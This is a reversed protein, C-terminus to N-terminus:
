PVFKPVSAVTARNEAVVQLAQIQMSFNHHNKSTRGLCYM